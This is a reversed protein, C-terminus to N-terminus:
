VKKITGVKYGEMDFMAKIMNEKQTPTLKALITTKNIGAKRSIFNAYEKSNNGDYDPAYMKIADVLTKNIYRSDKGFVLEKQANAGIEYTPFVAMDNHGEGVAGHEKAFPGYKINGPNNNRWALSGGSLRYRGTSNEILSQGQDSDLIKSIKFNTTSPIPLPSPKNESPEEKSSAVFKPFPKGIEEKTLGRSKPIIDKAM